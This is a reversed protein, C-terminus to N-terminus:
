KKARTFEVGLLNYDSNDVGGSYKIEGGKGYDLDGAALKIHDYPGDYDVRIPYAGYSGPLSVGPGLDSDNPGFTKAFVKEGGDYLIYRGSEHHDEGIKGRGETKSMQGVVLVTDTVYGGFSIILAESSRGERDLQGDWRAGKVGFGHDDFEEVFTVVGDEGDINTAKLRVGAAWDIWGAAGTVFKKGAALNVREGAGPEPAPDPAPNELQAKLAAIESELRAMEEGLMAVADKVEEAGAILQGAFEEIAKIQETPM